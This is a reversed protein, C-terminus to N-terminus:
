RHSAFFEEASQADTASDVTAHDSANTGSRARAAPSRTSSPRVSRTPPPPLPRTPPPPLPRTPTQLTAGGATAAAAAAQGAQGKNELAKHYAASKNAVKSPLCCAGWSRVCVGLRPEFPEFHRVAVDIDVRAQACFTVLLDFVKAASKSLRKVHILGPESINLVHFVPLRNIAAALIAV